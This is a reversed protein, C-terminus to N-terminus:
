RVISPQERSQRVSAIAEEQYPRQPIRVSPAARFLPATALAGKWNM